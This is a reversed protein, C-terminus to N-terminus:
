RRREEDELADPHEDGAGRVPPGSVAGAGELGVGMTMKDVRMLLLEPLRLNLDVYSMWNLTRRSPAGAGRVAARIPGIADWSTLGGLARRLRPSLLGSSRRTRSRRPAAGSCRSTARAAASGSSPAGHPRVGAAALAPALGRKLGPEAGPWDNWHQRKLAEDLEPYGFFLEDAGEGVQCVISATRAARAEVRLLRPVCVPDGIPEDQLRVMERCSISSTTSARDPVRPARRRRAGGDARAYHLENQYAPVDGDYGITFTECRRAERRRLVARANTSSDIGGSLFVGVPVDSVKRLRVATRLEALM